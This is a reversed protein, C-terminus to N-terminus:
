TSEVPDPFDAGMNNYEPYGGIASLCSVSWSIEGDYDERLLELSLYCEEYMSLINYCETEGYNDDDYIKMTPIGGVHWPNNDPDAVHASLWFIGSKRAEELAISEEQSVPRFKCRLPITPDDPLVLNTKLDVRPFVGVAGINARAQAQQEETLNQETYLVANSINGSGSGIKDMKQSCGIIFGDSTILVTAWKKTVVDSLVQQYSFSFSIEKNNGNGDTLVSANHVYFDFLPMYLIFPKNAPVDAVLKKVLEVVAESDYDGDEPDPNVCIEGDGFIIFGIYDEVRFGDMDVYLGLDIVVPAAGAGINARAQEQQESTLTQETYLVANSEGGAKGSLASVAQALLETQSEVENNAENINSTMGDIGIAETTGSLERVGDALATMKENVTAM